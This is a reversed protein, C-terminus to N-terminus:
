RRREPRLLTISCCGRKSGQIARNRLGSTFCDQVTASTCSHWSWRTTIRKKQPCCCNSMYFIRHYWKWRETRNPVIGIFFKTFWGKRHGPQTCVRYWSMINRQICKWIQLIEEHIIGSFRQIEHLSITLPKKPHVQISYMNLKLFEHPLM